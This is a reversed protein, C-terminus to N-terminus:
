LIHTVVEEHPELSVLYIHHVCAAFVCARRAELDSDLGSAKAVTNNVVPQSVGFWNIVEPVFKWEGAPVIM